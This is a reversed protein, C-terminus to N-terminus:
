SKTQNSLTYLCVFLPSRNTEHLKIDGNQTVKKSIELEAVISSVLYEDEIDLMKCIEPITVSRKSEDTQKSANKFINFIRSEYSTPDM